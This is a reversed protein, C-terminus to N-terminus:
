RKRKHLVFPKVQWFSEWTNDTPLKIPISLDYLGFPYEYIGDLDKEWTDMCCDKGNKCSQILKCLDTVGFDESIKNGQPDVIVTAMGNSKTWNDLIRYLQNMDCFEQLRLEVNEDIPTEVFHPHDM